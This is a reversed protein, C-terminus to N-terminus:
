GAFWHEHEAVHALPTPTLSFTRSAAVVLFSPFKFPEKLVRRAHADGLTLESLAETLQRSPHSGPCQAYAAEIRNLAASWGVDGAVASMAETEIRYASTLRDAPLKRLVSFYFSRLAAASVRRRLLYMVTPADRLSAHKLSLRAGPAMQLSASLGVLQAEDLREVMQVLSSLHSIMVESTGWRLINLLVLQEDYQSSVAAIQPGWYKVDASRMRAYRCREVLSDSRDLLRASGKGRQSKSKVGAAVSALVAALVSSDAEAAPELSSVIEVIEKWPELNRGMEVSDRRVVDSWTSAVNWLEMALGATVPKCDDPDRPRILAVGHLNVLVRHSARYLDRFWGFMSTPGGSVDWPSVLLREIARKTLIESAFLASSMPSALVAAVAGDVDDARELLSAFEPTQVSQRPVSSRLDAFCVVSQSGTVMSEFLKLTEEITQNAIIFRLLDQRAEIPATSQLVNLALSIAKPRGAADSLESTSDSLRSSTIDRLGLEDMSMAVVEDRLLPTQAFVFDGALTLGIRRASQSVDYPPESLLARLSSVLSAIEGKRCSGAFFRTVNLWFPNRLLAEFRDIRDGYREDGATSAPATEYLHKACFYERIPQVIFEYEGQRRQHLAVVREVIGTFLASALDPSHGEQELYRTLEAIFEEYSIAGSTRGTEAQSHLLWAFYRHIDVLLDRHIRVIESKESERALLLDVYQDYLTTRKDPLSAGRQHMLNLLIALQMANHSLERVHPENLKATFVTHLDILEEKDLHRAKAWREMYEIAIRPPLPGLSLHSFQKTSFGSTATYASPRSTIVLQSRAGIATLRQGFESIARVVRGRDAPDAIEDFGDFIFITPSEVVIDDLLDADFKVGGAATSVQLSFFEEASGVRRDTHLIAASFDRLDAKFPIRIPLNKYSSDLRNLVEDKRLLHARHYQAVFQMLTSKGQGPAGELVLLEPGSMPNANLLTRAAGINTSIILNGSMDMAAEIEGETWRLHRDLRSRSRSWLSEDVALPGDIFMTLLDNELEAQKFRILRDQDYQAGMYMRLARERRAKETASLAEAILPIADSGRVIEPFAWRVTPHADLWTDVDHRWYCAAELPLSELYRDLRDMHGTEFRGSGRVNTIIEYRVAGSKALADIKSREGEIARRLWNVPDQVRAPERTFKVQYVLTDATKTPATLAARLPRVADRGGDAENLPYSQLDPWRALLLAQCLRQFGSDELEEFNTTV